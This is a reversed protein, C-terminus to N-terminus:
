AWLRRVGSVHGRGGLERACAGRMRPSYAAFILVLPQPRLRVVRVARPGRRWGHQAPVRPQSLSLPASPFLPLSDLGAGVDAQM